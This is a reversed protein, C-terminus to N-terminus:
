RGGGQGEFCELRRTKTTEMHRKDCWLAGVRMPEGSPSKQRVWKCQMCMGGASKAGGFFVHCPM